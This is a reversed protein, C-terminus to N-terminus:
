RVIAIRSVSARAGDIAISAFYLGSPLGRPIAAALRGEGGERRGRWLTAVRRGSLDFLEWRVAAARPLSLAQARRSRAPDPAPAGIRLAPARPPVDTVTPDAALVRVHDVYWGERGVFDDAAMHLRFRVPGPAYPYLAVIESRWGSSTGSWCRAGVGLAVDQSEHTYS